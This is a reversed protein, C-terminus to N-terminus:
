GEEKKDSKAVVFNNRDSVTSLQHRLTKKDKRLLWNSKQLARIKEKLAQNSALAAPQDECVEDTEVDPNSSSSSHAERELSRIIQFSSHWIKVDDVEECIDLVPSPDDKREGGLVNPNLSFM